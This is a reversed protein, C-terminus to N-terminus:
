KTLAFDVIKKKLQVPGLPSQIDELQNLFLGLADFYLVTSTVSVNMGLYKTAGKCVVPIVQGPVALHVEKAPYAQGVICQQTVRKNEFQISLEFSKGTVPPLTLGPASFSLEVDPEQVRELGRVTYSPQPPSAPPQADPDNLVEVRSQALGNLPVPYFTERSLKPKKLPRSYEITWTFGSVGKTTPGVLGTKALAELLAPRFQPNLNLPAQAAVDGAFLVATIAQFCILFRSRLPV